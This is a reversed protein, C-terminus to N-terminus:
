VDAGPLLHLIGEPIAEPAILIYRELFAINKGSISGTSPLTAIRARLGHRRLRAAAQKCQQRTDFWCQGWWMQYEGQTKIYREVDGYYWITSTM